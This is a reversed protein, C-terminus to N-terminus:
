NMRRTRMRRTRTRTRMRRRKTGGKIWYTPEAVNSDYVPGAYTAINTGGRKSRSRSRSKGKKSKSKKNRKKGAIQHAISTSSSMNPNYNVMNNEDKNEYKTTNTNIPYSPQNMNVSEDKKKGTLNDFLEASGKATDNWANSFFDLIGKGSNSLNDNGGKKVRSRSKTKGM